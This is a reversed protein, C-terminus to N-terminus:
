EDDNFDLTVNNTTIEPGYATDKAIGTASVKQGEQLFINTKIGYIKNDDTIMTAICGYDNECPIKDIRGNLTIEEGYISKNTM